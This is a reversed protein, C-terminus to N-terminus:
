SFYLRFITEECGSVLWTSFLSAVEMEYCLIYPYRRKKKQFSKRHGNCKKWDGGLLYFMPTDRVVGDAPVHKCNSKLM